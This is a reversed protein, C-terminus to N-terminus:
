TVGGVVKPINTASFKANGPDEREPSYVVHIDKGVAFGAAEVRTVVEEDTTGPYTTSEVSLVQGPRLHPVVAEVTRVVYSLDPQFHEDLPTPVCLIVADLEAVASFDTTAHLRGAALAEAVLGSPIHKIYSEGRLLREPKGPDIDIG